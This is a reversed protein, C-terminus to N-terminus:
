DAGVQLSGPRPLSRYIEEFRKDAYRTAFQRMYQMSLFRSQRILQQLEIPYQELDGEGVDSDAAGSFSTPPSATNTTPVPTGEVLTTEPHAVRSLDPKWVPPTRTFEPPIPVQNPCGEKKLPQLNIVDYWKLCRQRVQSDSRWIFNIGNTPSAKPMTKFFEPTFVADKQFSANMSVTTASWNYTPKLQEEIGLEQSKIQADKNANSKMFLSLECSNVLSTANEGYGVSLQIFDQCAVTLSVKKSRGATMLEMIYPLGDRGESFKNFEDIYISTHFHNGHPQEDKSLLVQALATFAVRMIPRCTAIKKLDQGFLLLGGQETVANISFTRGTGYCGQTAYYEFRAATRVSDLSALLNLRISDVTKDAKANLMQDVVAFSGPSLLLYQILAPLSQQTLNYLDAMGWTTGKTEILTDICALLLLQACQNWFPEQTNGLPIITVVFDRALDCDYGIDAAVNWIDSRADTPNYYYFQVGQLEAQRAYFPYDEGKYDFGVVLGPTHGLLNCAYLWDPRMMITKGAGTAGVILTHAEMTEFPIFYGGKWFYRGSESVGGYISGPNDIGHKRQKPKRIPPLKSSGKLLGHQAEANILHNVFDDHTTM